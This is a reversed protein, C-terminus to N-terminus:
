YDHREGRFREALMTQEIHADRMRRVQMRNMERHVGELIGLSLSGFMVFVGVAEDLPMLAIGLILCLLCEAAKAKMETRFGPIRIALSPFGTYRSHQSEDAKARMRAAFIIWIGAYILMSEAGAAACLLLLGPALAGHTRLADVGMGSRLFPWICAAHVQAAFLLFNFGGKMTIKDDPPSEMPNANM